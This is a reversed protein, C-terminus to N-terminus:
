GKEAGFFSALSQPRRIVDPVDPLSGRSRAQPLPMLIWENGAPARLVSSQWPTKPILSPESRNQLFMSGPSEERMITISAPSIVASTESSSESKAGSRNYPNGNKMELIM